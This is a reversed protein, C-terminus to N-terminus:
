DVKVLKYKIGDIEVTKNDCNSKVKQIQNEALAFALALALAIADGIALSDCQEIKIKTKSWNNKQWNFELFTENNNIVKTFVFPKIENYGFKKRAQNLNQLTAPLLEYPEGTVMSNVVELFSENIANAKLM